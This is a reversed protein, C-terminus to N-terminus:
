GVGIIDGTASLTIGSTLTTSVGVLEVIADGLTLGNAADSVFLYTKGGFTFLAAEGAATAAGSANVAAAIQDLASKLTAPPGDDFTVIGTSSIVALGDSNTGAAQATVTVATSFKLIDSAGFTVLDVTSTVVNASSVTYRSDSASAAVEAKGAVPADVNATLTTTSASVGTTGFNLTTATNVDRNNSAYVVPLTATNGNTGATSSIFVRLGPTTVGNTLDSDALDTYQVTASGVSQTSAAFLSLSNAVSTVYTM